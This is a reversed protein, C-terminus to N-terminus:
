RHEAGLYGFYLIKAKSKEDGLVAAREWLPIADKLDRDPVCGKAYLRGLNFMAFSINRKVLEGYVDAAAVFQRRLEHRRAVDFLVVSTSYENEKIMRKAVANIYTVEGDVGSFYDMM